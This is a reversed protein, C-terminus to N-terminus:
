AVWFATHICVAPSPRAAAAVVRVHRLARVPRPAPADAEDGHGLRGFAGVGSSLARGGATVFLAHNATASVVVIRTRPGLGLARPVAAVPAAWALSSRASSPSRGASRARKMPARGRASRTRGVWARAPAEDGSSASDSVSSVDSEDSDDDSGGLDDFSLALAPAPSRPAGRGCCSAVGAASLVISHGAGAAVAM